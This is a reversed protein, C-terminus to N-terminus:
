KHGWSWHRLLRDKILRIAVKGQVYDDIGLRRNDSLVLVQSATLTVPEMQWTPNQHTYAETLPQGNILPVGNSLAVTEGPLGVVRKIFWLPPNDATRFSVIDGRQPQYNHVRRMLCLDHNHLTPLMSEGIVLTLGFNYRWILATVIVVGLVILSRRTRANM